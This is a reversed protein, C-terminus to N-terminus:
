DCCRVQEEDERDSLRPLALLLTSLPPGARQGLTDFSLRWAADIGKAVQARRM